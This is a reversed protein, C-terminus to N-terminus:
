CITTGQEEKPTSSDTNRCDCEVVVPRVRKLLFIPVPLNAPPILGNQLDLPLQPLKSYEKCVYLLVIILGVSLELSEVSTKFELPWFSSINSTAM